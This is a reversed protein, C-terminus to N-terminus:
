VFCHVDPVAGLWRQHFRVARAEFIEPREQSTDVKLCIFGHLSSILSPESPLIRHTLPRRDM